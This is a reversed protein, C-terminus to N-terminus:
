NVCITDVLWSKEVSTRVNGNLNPVTVNKKSSKVFVCSFVRKIAPNVLEKTVHFPAFINVVHCHETVLNEVLGIKTM